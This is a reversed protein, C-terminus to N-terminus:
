YDLKFYINRGVSELRLLIGPVNHTHTHTHTHTYM